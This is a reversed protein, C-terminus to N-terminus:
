RPEGAGAEGQLPPLSAARPAKWPLQGDTEGTLDVLGFAKANYYTLYNQEVFDWLTITPPQTPGKLHAKRQPVCDRTLYLEGENVTEAEGKKEM